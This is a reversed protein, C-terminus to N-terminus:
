IMNILNTLGIERLLASYDKSLSLEYNHNVIAVNSHREIVHGNVFIKKYGFGLDNYHAESGGSKEFILGPRFVHLGGKEKLELAGTKKRVGSVTIGIKGGIEYAYKKAGWTRFYDYHADEEFVGMYHKQGDPSEGFSGCDISMEKRCKNIGSFDVNGIYKVSDTDAYVFGDGALNVGEQLLWRAWATCWVGWQYPLFPHVEEWNQMGTNVIEGDRFIYTERLPDQAMMGYCANIKRKSEAYYVESEKVGKLATKQRYYSQITQVVKRPLKSYNSSWLELIIVDEWDYQSSIIKFDIDIIVTECLSSELVRGNDLIVGECSCKSLSIYPLTVHEKLRLNVFLVKVVFSRHHKVLEELRYINLETESTFPAIPFECTTLVFPYSSDIDYSLVDSLVLGTYFRNAHTNGGRIADRLLPYVEQQKVAKKYFDPSMRMSIRMDRRVYGTSTLPISMLTDSHVELLAYICEVVSRVDCIQYILEHINLKTDPYRVINHNYTESSRKYHKVCMKRSWESLSLGSLRYSCRYEISGSVFSIVKREDTALLEDVEFFSKLFQFEYSLNHVYVLLRAGEPICAMLRSIFDRYQSLTHGIYTCCSGLQFAWSYVHTQYGSIKDGLTSTEIDFACPFDVIPHKYKGGGNGRPRKVVSWSDHSCEDIECWPRTTSECFIM